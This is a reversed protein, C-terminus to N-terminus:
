VTMLRAPNHGWFWPHFDEKLMQNSGIESLLSLIKRADESNGAAAPMLSQAAVVADPASMPAAPKSAEGEGGSDSNSSALLEVRENTAESALDVSLFSLTLSIPYM